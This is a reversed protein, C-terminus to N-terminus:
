SASGLPAETPRVDMGSHMTGNPDIINGSSIAVNKITFTAGEPTTLKLTGTLTAISNDRVLYGANGPDVDSAESIKVSDSAGWETDATVSAAAKAAFGFVKTSISATTEVGIKTSQGISTERSVDISAKASSYNQLTSSIQEEDVQHYTPTSSSPTWSVKDPSVRPLVSNVITAATSPDTDADITTTTPSNWIADVHRPLGDPDYAMHYASSEVWTGSPQRDFSHSEFHGNGSESLNVVHTQGASDTFLYDTWTENDGADDPSWVATQGPAVTVPPKVIWPGVPPTTGQWLTWTYPTLNTVESASHAGTPTTASPSAAVAATVGAGAILVGAVGVGLIKKTWTKANM